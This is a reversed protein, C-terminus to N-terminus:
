MAWRGAQIRSDAFIAEVRGAKEKKSARRTSLVM